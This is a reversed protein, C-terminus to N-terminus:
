GSFKNNCRFTAQCDFNSTTCSYSSADCDYRPWCETKMVTRLGGAAVDGGMQGHRQPANYTGHCKHPAICDYTGTCSFEAGKCEYGVTPDPLGGGMKAMITKDLMPSPDYVHQCKPNIDGWGGRLRERLESVLLPMIEDAMRAVLKDVQTPAARKTAAAGNKVTSTPTKTTPKKVM